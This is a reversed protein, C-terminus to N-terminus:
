NNCRGEVFWSNYRKNSYFFQFMRLGYDGHLEHNLLFQGLAAALVSLAFLIYYFTTDLVPSALEELHNAVSVEDTCVVSFYLVSALKPCGVQEKMGLYPANQMQMQPFFTELPKLCNQPM